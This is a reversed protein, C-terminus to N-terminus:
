RWRRSQLVHISLLLFVYTVSIYFVVDRTNLLGKQFNVFHKGHLAMYAVVERIPPETVQGLLWFLLLAVVLTASTVVAVLQNKALASSFLGIALAASGLLLLGLYGGLIHGLSVKGNVFILLPMYVTFLTMLCFFVLVSFFKGLIIERDKIPSTLLLPLTETQREEALLRMSLFISAILTTGSSFYFFLELVESSLKEQGGLAYVNFLLGDIALVAATIIYGLPSKLYAALERRVLLAINRM